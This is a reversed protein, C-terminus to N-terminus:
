DSVDVVDDSVATVQKTEPLRAPQLYAAIGSRQKTALMTQVSKSGRISRCHSTCLRKRSPSASLRPPERYSELSPVEQMVAQCGDEEDDDVTFCANAFFSAYFSSSPDNIREAIAGDSADAIPEDDQDVPCDPVYGGTNNAAVAAPTQYFEIAQTKHLWESDSTQDDDAQKRKSDEFGSGLAKSGKSSFFKNLKPQQPNEAVAANRFNSMRVGLLRCECPMERQFVERAVSWIEDFSNIWSRVSHARTVVDFSSLKLKVTLTKGSLGQKQMDEALEECLSRLIGLLTDPNGEDRFTRETSISKRRITGDSDDHVDLKNPAVGLARSLLWEVRESFAVMLDEKLRLVDGVTNGGLSQLLKETVKGVGGLKRVPKQHLWALLQTRERPVLFQGNPKQEDAALKALAFNPAIGASATLGGTRARIATRLEQVLSAAAQEEDCNDEAARSRVKDTIDVYAEDLSHAEYQGYESLEDRIDKAVAAYKEHDCNVFQLTVGQRHCLEKAIFGPMASRVGYKRAVYNATSVMSLSGVAVAETALAPNDRIEVAAYFMDMDVVCCWKTFDRQSEITKILKEARRNLNARNASTTAKLAEHMQGIRQDVKADQHQAHEFHRSGKSLEAIVQLQLDKDIGSMGGKEATFVYLHAHEQGVRQEQGDNRDKEPAQRQGQEPCKELISSRDDAAAAM